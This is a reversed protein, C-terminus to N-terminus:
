DFQTLIRTVGGAYASGFHNVHNLLHYLNYVDRRSDYGPSLPWADHYSEYFSRDFGGFLETMALDVERHGFYVAPDVLAATGSADVMFNGSWLDGHVLSAEPSRPLVDGLRDALNQYGSDWRELWAGSRRLREVQPELRRDHFFGPWEEQWGNTQPLRGIFNDAEFGYQDATNRHLAALGAGFRAWFGDAMAGTEVWELVLVGPASNERPHVLHVRPIRLPHSAGALVRLGRAEADFTDGPPGDSWKLFLTQDGTEIRSAHSICGGGLPAVGRLTVNLRERLIEEVASPLM